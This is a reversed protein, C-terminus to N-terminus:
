KLITEENKSKECDHNINKKIIKNSESIVTQRSVKSRKRESSFSTHIIYEPPIITLYKVKSKVWGFLCSALKNKTYKDCISDFLKQPFNCIALLMVDREVIIYHTCANSIRLTNYFSNYILRYDIYMELYLYCLQIYLTVGFKRIISFNTNFKLMVVSRLEEILM